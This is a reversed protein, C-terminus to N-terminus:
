AWFDMARISAHDDVIVSWVLLLVGSCVPQAPADHDRAASSILDVYEFQGPAARKAVMSRVTYRGFNNGPLLLLPLQSSTIISADTPM